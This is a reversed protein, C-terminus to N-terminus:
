SIEYKTNYQITPKLSAPTTRYFTKVKDLLEATLDSNYGIIATNTGPNTITNHYFYGVVGTSFGMQRAKNIIIRNEGKLTNFLDKQAENLLFPALSGQQKTKIKTYNELYFKPDKLRKLLEINNNKM